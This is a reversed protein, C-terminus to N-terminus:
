THFDMYCAVKNNDISNTTEKVIETLDLSTAHNESFGFQSRYFFVVTHRNVRSRDCESLSYEHCHANIENVAHILNLIRRFRAGTYLCLVDSLHTTRSSVLICTLYILCYAHRVMFCFYLGRHVSDYATFSLSPVNSM